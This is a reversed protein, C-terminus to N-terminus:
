ERGNRSVRPFYSESPSYSLSLSLFGDVARQQFCTLTLPFPSPSGLAIWPTALREISLLCGVTKAQPEVAVMEDGRQKQVTLEVSVM